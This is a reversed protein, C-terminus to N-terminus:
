GGRTAENQSEFRERSHEAHAFGPSAWAGRGTLSIQVIGMPRCPGRSKGRRAVRFVTAANGAKGTARIRANGLHPSGNPREARRFSSGWRRPQGASRSGRRGGDAPFSSLLSLQMRTPGFEGDVPRPTLLGGGKAEASPFRCNSLCVPGQRLNEPGRM